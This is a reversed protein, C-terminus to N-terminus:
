HDIEWTRGLGPKIQNLLLVLDFSTQCPSVMMVSGELVPHERCRETITIGLGSFPGKLYNWQFSPFCVKKKKKENLSILLSVETLECLTFDNKWSEQM